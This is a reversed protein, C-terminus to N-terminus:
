DTAVLFIQNNDKQRFMRGTNPCQIYNSTLNAINEPLDKGEYFDAISEREAPGDHLDVLMKMRHVDGCNNCFVYVEYKAM